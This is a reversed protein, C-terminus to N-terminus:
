AEHHASRKEAVRIRRDKQRAVGSGVQSAIRSLTPCETQRQESSGDASHRAWVEESWCCCRGRTQGAEM